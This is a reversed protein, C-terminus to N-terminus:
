GRDMRLKLNTLKEQLDQIMESQHSLVTRIKFDQDKSLMGNVSSASQNRNYRMYAQYERLIRPLSRHIKITEGKLKRVMNEQKRLYDGFAKEWVSLRPEFRDMLIQLITDARLSIETQAQQISALKRQTMSLTELKEAISESLDSIVSQQHHLENTQLNIRNIINEGADILGMLDARLREVGTGLTTLESLSILENDGTAGGDGLRKGKRFATAGSSVLVPQRTNRKRELTEHITFPHVLLSSYLQKDSEGTIATQTQSPPTSDSSDNISASRLCLELPVMDFSSTLLFLSYGLYSDTIIALGIVPNPARECAVVTSVIWSVDSSGGSELVDDLSQQGDAFRRWSKILQSTWNSVNVCHAGMSHYVYFTDSYLPDVVIELTTPNSDTSISSTSNSPTNSLTSSLGLDISEYVIFTPLSSSSGSIKLSKGNHSSVKYGWRPLVKEVELCIDIRGDDWAVVVSNVPKLNLCSIQVANSFIDADLEPPLPKYLFPGQSIATFEKWVASHCLMYPPLQNPHSHSPPFPETTDLLLSLFQLQNKDSNTLPTSSSTSSLSEHLSRFIDYQEYTLLCKLPVVPCLAYVDGNKMLGYLTFLGWIDSTPPAELDLDEEFPGYGFSFSVAETSEKDAAFM